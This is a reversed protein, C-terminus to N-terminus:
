FRPARLHELEDVIIGLPRHLASEREAKAFVQGGLKLVANFLPNITPPLKRRNVGLRQDLIRFLLVIMTVEGELDDEVPPSVFGVSVPPTDLLRRARPASQM